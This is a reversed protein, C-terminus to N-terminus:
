KIGSKEKILAITKRNRLITTVYERYTPSFIQQKAEKSEYRSALEDVETDVDKEDVELKEKRAIDKLVLAVKIRTLAQPTFDLKMEALTKKISKMYAEFDLGQAEVNRQLEFVMKNIEENVLLDPIDEFRSDNAVAELLEKEVRQNEEADKEKQLNARILGKMTEADKQGLSVAFADDLTPTELTYIERATVDFEVDSGALLPSTHDTPFTITFTKKDGEKLGMLQEKMGPIYHEEGLYVGHNPSQGGEVPVGAKKMDIAVVIKDTGSAASGAARRVEKTQMRTLDSIAQEMDKDTVEAKAEKVSVKTYDALRTVAPLRAVEATYVLDTNPVMKEVDIHPSGVTDVQHETLADGYTKRVIRELAEELLKVEGVRQKVVDFPAKGPRFGPITSNESIHVAAAELYPRLEDVSVTITFKVLNKPLQEIKSTAMLAAITALDRLPTLRKRM